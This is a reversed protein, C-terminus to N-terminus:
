ALLRSFVSTMLRFFSERKRFFLLMLPLLVVLILLLSHQGTTVIVGGVPTRMTTSRVGSQTPGPKVRLADIEVPKERDLKRTKMVTRRQNRLM